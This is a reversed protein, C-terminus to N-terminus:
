ATLNMTPWLQGPRKQRLLAVLRADADIGSCDQDDGSFAVMHAPLRIPRGNRIEELDSSTLVVRPLDPVAALAPQLYRHLMEATLEDPAVADEVRFNGIATRVLASMVAATGMAAALDRGLSRVYTGSSCEIELELQPYAYQRVALRYITIPRPALEVAKGQRALAYARRGAVKVASYAPPRQMIEGAFQPLTAAIEAKTPIPPNPLESM